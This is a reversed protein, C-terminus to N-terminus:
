GGSGAGYGRLLAHLNEIEKELGQVYVRVKENVDDAVPKHVHRYLDLLVKHFDAMAPPMAEGDTMQSQRRELSHITRAQTRVRRLLGAVEAILLVIREEMTTAIDTM